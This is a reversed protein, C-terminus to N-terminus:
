CPVAESKLEVVQNVKGSLKAGLTLIQPFTMMIPLLLSHVAGRSMALDAFLDSAKLRLRFAKLWADSYEKGAITLSLETIGDPGLKLLSQSLLWASQM